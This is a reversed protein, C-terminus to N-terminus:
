VGEVGVRIGAYEALRCIRQTHRNASDFVGPEGDGTGTIGSEEDPVVGAGAGGELAHGDTNGVTPASSESHQPHRILPLYVIGGRRRAARGSSSSPNGARGMSSM